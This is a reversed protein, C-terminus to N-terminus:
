RTAERSLRARAAPDMGGLVSTTDGIALAWDLCETRVDCTGCVQICKSRVTPSAATFDLDSSRCAALDHWAPRARELIAVLLGLGDGYTAITENYLVALLPDLREDAPPFIDPNTV